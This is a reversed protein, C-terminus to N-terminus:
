VGSKSSATAITVNPALPGAAPCSCAQTHRTLTAIGAKDSDAQAIQPLEARLQDAAAQRV